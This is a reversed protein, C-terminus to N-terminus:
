VNLRKQEAAFGEKERPHELFLAWATVACACTRLLTAPAQGAFSPSRFTCL